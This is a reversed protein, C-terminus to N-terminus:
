EVPESPTARLEAAHDLANAILDVVHQDALSYYIHLGDRRKRVLGEQFLLRLRQSMTSFKEGFHEVMEGVCSEGGRLFQLLALRAPDGMARFLRAARTLAAPEVAVRVADPTHPHSCHQHGSDPPLQNM